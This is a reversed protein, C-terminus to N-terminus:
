AHIQLYKFTYAQVKDRELTHPTYAYTHTHMPIAISKMTEFLSHKLFFLKPTLSSFQQHKDNQIIFCSYISSSLTNYLVSTHLYSHVRKYAYTCTRHMHIYTQPNHQNIDTHMCMFLQEYFHSMHMHICVKLHINSKDNICSFNCRHLIKHISIICTHIQIYKYIHLKNLPHIHASLKIMHNHMHTQMSTHFICNIMNIYIHTSM